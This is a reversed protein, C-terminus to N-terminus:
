HRNDQAGHGSPPENMTYVFQRMEKRQRESEAGQQKHLREFVAFEGAAREREATHVYAQALRYHAEALEPQLAIAQKYEAIAAPFNQESAYLNGLQLHPDPFSPDLTAATRLGSEVQALDAPNTKGRTGKWISMTYYYRAQANRPAIQTYRKLRESVEPSEATSINYAKALFLFPRLDNPALDCARLFASVAKDYSSRSYLSIGLGIQMRASQPYRETGLTFVQTAPELALHLLLETGWAFINSESPDMHAARQYENVSEVPNGSKEDVEGLLSHLEATDRQQMMARMQQKAKEFNKTELYATALDYGNVYSLPDVRQAAELYPLAGDLKGCHIYFEGLEHNAEFSSPELETAKKLEVEALSDQGLRVLSLALNTRGPVSRPRLRVAKKLFPIASEDKGQAAYILGMLENVQFTDPSRAFLPKLKALALDYQKANYAALASQVEPDLREGQGIQDTATAGSCVLTLILVPRSFKTLLWRGTSRAGM